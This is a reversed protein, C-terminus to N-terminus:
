QKVGGLRPAESDGLASPLAPLSSGVGAEAGSGKGPEAAAEDRESQACSGVRYEAQRTYRDAAEVYPRAHRWGLDSYAHGAAVLQVRLRAIDGQACTFYQHQQLSQLRAWLDPRVEKIRSISVPAQVHISGGCCEVSQLISETQSLAERLVASREGQSNADFAMEFWARAESMAYSESDVGALQLAALRGEVQALRLDTSAREPVVATASCGVVALTWVLAFTRLVM